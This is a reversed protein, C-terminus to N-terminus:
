RRVRYLLCSEGGVQFDRCVHPRYQYHKCQGTDPDLWICPVNRDERDQELMMVLELEEALEAPLIDLEFSMFPPFGM